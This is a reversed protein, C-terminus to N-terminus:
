ATAGPPGRVPTARWKEGKPVSRPLEPTSSEEIWFTEEVLLEGEEQPVFTGDFDIARKDIRPNWRGLWTTPSESGDSVRDHHEIQHHTDALPGGVLFGTLSFTLAFCIFACLGPRLVAISRFPLHARTERVLYM